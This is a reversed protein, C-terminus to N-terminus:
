QPRPSRKRPICPYDVCRCQGGSSLCHVEHGLASLLAVKPSHPKPGSAFGHLYAIRAM